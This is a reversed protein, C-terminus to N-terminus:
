GPLDLVHALEVVRQDDVDVAVVAGAGFARQGARGVLPRGVVADEVERDGLLELEIVGPARRRGIRVHRHRPRPCEVRRELPGLLDRRVEAARALAHRDRPRAVDLVSAANAVLEVVDDVDHRRDEFRGTDLRRLHDIADLLLRDFAHAHGVGEVLRVRIRGRRALGLVELHDGVAPDIVVAPVGVRRRRM